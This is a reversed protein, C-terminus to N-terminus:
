KGCCFKYHVFTMMTAELKLRPFRRAVEGRLGELERTQTESWSGGMESGVSVISELHTLKPLGGAIRWVHDQLCYTQKSIYTAALQLLIKM